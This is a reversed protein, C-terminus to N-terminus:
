KEKKDYAEKSVEQQEDRSYGCALSPDAILAEAHQKDIEDTPKTAKLGKIKKLENKGAEIDQNNGTKTGRCLLSVGLEKIYEIRGPEREVAKSQLEVSKDIDGKAGFVWQLFRWDPVVRYFQGLGNYADALANAQGNEARYQPKLEIAKSFAAELDDIEGLSNLVGQTTGRRGKGIAEWLYCNGDDPAVAWCRKGLEEVESYREVLVNKPPKKDRPIDELIDYNNRAKRWLAEPRDPDLKIAEDLVKNSSEYDNELWLKEAESILKDYSKEGASIGQFFLLCFIALLLYKIYHM